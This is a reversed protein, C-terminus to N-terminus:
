ITGYNSGGEQKLRQIFKMVDEHRVCPLEKLIEETAEKGLSKFMATLLTVIGYRKKTYSMLPVTINSGTFPFSVDLYWLVRANQPKITVLYPYFSLLYAILVSGAVKGSWHCSSRVVNGKDVSLHGFIGFRLAETYFSTRVVVWGPGKYPEDTLSITPLKTLLVERFTYKLVEAPTLRLFSDDRLMSYVHNTISLVQSLLEVPEKSQWSVYTNVSRGKLSAVIKYKFTTIELSCPTHFFSLSTQLSTKTVKFKM